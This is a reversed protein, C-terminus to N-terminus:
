PDPMARLQPTPRLHNPDPMETAATYALLQLDSKFGWGPFRWISRM